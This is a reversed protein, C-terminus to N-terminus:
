PPTANMPRAPEVRKLTPVGSTDWFYCNGNPHRANECKAFYDGAKSADWQESNMWGPGNGTSQIERKCDFCWKM